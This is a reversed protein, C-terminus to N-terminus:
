PELTITIKALEDELIINYFQGEETISVRYTTDEKKLFRFPVTLRSDLTYFHYGNNETSLSVLETIPALFSGLGGKKNELEVGQIAKGILNDQSIMAMIKKIDTYDLEKRNFHSLFNLKKADGFILTLEQEVFHDTDTPAEGIVDAIFLSHNITVWDFTYGAITVTHATVMPDKLKLLMDVTYLSITPSIREELYPQDLVGDPYDHDGIIYGPIDGANNLTLLELTNELEYFNDSQTRMAFKITLENDEISVEDQLVHARAMPNSLIFDNTYHVGHVKKTKDELLEKLKVLGKNVEQNATPKENTM